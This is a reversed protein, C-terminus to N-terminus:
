LSTIASWYACRWPGFGRGGARRPPRKAHSTPRLRTGAACCRREAVHDTVEARREPLDFVQRSEEGTVPADGLGGGCSECETPTHRVTHDPDAVRHLNAGPAGPQKGARRRGKVRKATRKAALAARQEATDASPPKSSNGSYRSADRELEAVRGLLRENQETLCM